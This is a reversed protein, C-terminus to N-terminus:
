PLKALVPYNFQQRKWWMLPDEEFDTRHGSLYGDIENMVIQRHQEEQNVPTAHEQEQERIRFEFDKFLTGLNREKKPASPEQLEHCVELTDDTVKQKISLLEVEQFHEFYKVKFRLDLFTAVQLIENVTDNLRSYRGKIDDVIRHKIDRTLVTEEAGEKLLDTELLYLMPIVTSVSAYQEGSLIGTLGSLPSVASNISELVDLDQWIPVLHSTTRDSSLVLRIPEKQELIRSVM